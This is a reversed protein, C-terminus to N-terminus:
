VVIFCLLPAHSRKTTNTAEVDKLVEFTESEEVGGGGGGRLINKFVFVLFRGFLWLLIVVFVM